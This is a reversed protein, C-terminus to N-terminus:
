VHVHLHVHVLVQIHVHILSVKSQLDNIWEYQIDHIWKSLDDDYDFRRRYRHILTDYLQKCDILADEILTSQVREKYDNALQVCRENTKTRAQQTPILFSPKTGLDTINLVPPTFGLHYAVGPWFLNKNVLTQLLYRQMATHVGAQLDEYLVHMHEYFSKRTVQPLLKIYPHLTNFNEENFIAEPLKKLFQADVLYSERAENYLQQAIELNFNPSPFNQSNPSSFMTNPKEGTVTKDDEDDSVLLEDPKHINAHVPSAQTSLNYFDTTSM